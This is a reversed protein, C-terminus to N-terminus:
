NEQVSTSNKRRNAPTETRTRRPSIFTWAKEWDTRSPSLTSFADNLFLADFPPACIFHCFFNEGGVARVNIKFLLFFGRRRRRALLIVFFVRRPQPACILHCLQIKRRARSACTFHSNKKEADAARSHASLFFERRRRRAFM